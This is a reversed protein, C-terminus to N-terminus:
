SLAFSLTATAVQHPKATADTVQVSIQYTGPANKLSPTGSLLGSSNLKLGKPLAALKKWKYPLTGGTAALQQGYHVGRVGATLSTTTVSIGLVTLTFNQVVPAGIGNTATFTIPYAGGSTPDPTGSLLGNSYSVGAPLAGSEGITPFPLGTATVAFTGAVNKTFSVSSTSTFAPATQRTEVCSSAVNSWQTQTTYTLGDTGVFTGHQGNCIDGIEGNSPDYWALPPGYVTAFGVDPDTITEVLEHSLVATTNQASTGTGCGSVGTLDPMVQYTFTVGSLTMTGHYACFGGAVLSCSTGDCITQGQRFFLAYSTNATPAPLSGAGIQAALETQINADTINSGNRSVAPTITIGGGSLGRGISQSGTDYESLWDMTGSGLYQSTFGSLLTANAPTSLYTGSGYSVDISNMSTLVRGGYYNLHPGAFPSAHNFTPFVLPTIGPRLHTSPNAGLTAAGVAHTTAAGATAPVAVLGILVVGAGVVTTLAKVATRRALKTGTREHAAQSDMM